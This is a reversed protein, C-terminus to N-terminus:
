TYEAMIQRAKPNKLIAKSPSKKIFDLKCSKTRKKKNPGLFDQGVGLKCHGHNRQLVLKGRSYWLKPNKNLGIICESNIKWIKNPLPPHLKNIKRYIYGTTRVFYM